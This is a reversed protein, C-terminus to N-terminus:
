DKFCLNEQPPRMLANDIQKQLSEIWDIDLTCHPEGQRFVLLTPLHFISFEEIIGPADEAYILFIPTHIDEEKIKHALRRCAGCRPSSFFAIADQDPRELLLYFDQYHIPTM